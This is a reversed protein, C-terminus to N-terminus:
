CPMEMILKEFTATAVYPWQYTTCTIIYVIVKLARENSLQKSVWNKEMSCKNGAWWWSICTVHAGFVQDSGMFSPTYEQGWEPRNSRIVCDMLTCGMPQIQMAFEWTSNTRNQVHVIPLVQTNEVVPLRLVSTDRFNWFATAGQPRQYTTCTIIHIIVKPVRENSLQKSVLNM